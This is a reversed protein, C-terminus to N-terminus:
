TSSSLHRQVSGLFEDLHLNKVEHLRRGLVEPVWTRKNGIEPHWRELVGVPVVFIGCESLFSLVRQMSASPEGQPVAAIGGTKIQEWGSVHKISQAVIRRAEDTLADKEGLHSISSVADRLDRMVPPKRLQTIASQLTRLEKEIDFPPHDNSPICERVLRTDDLFDIDVIAASPVGFRRAEKLARGMRAKGNVHMFLLDQRSNDRLHRDVYAQYYTCDSDGECVVIGEHFLGSLIESYRLFPDAWVGRVEDPNIEQFKNGRGNRSIRVIKVPTDRNELIGMLVDISHTAIVIQADDPSHEVLYRGLLRAQPPHLFAEPEDIFIMTGAPTIANILLGMFARVGDGQDSVPEFSRFEILLEESVPYGSDEITPKGTLLDLQQEHRNICIPFGFAKEALQSIRAELELDQVMKQLTGRPTGRMLSPKQASLPLHLRESTGHFSAFFPLTAGLVPQQEWYRFSGVSVSGEMEHVSDTVFIGGDNDRLRLRRSDLWAVVDEETGKKHMEVDAVIARDGSMGDKAAEHLERLFRSKGSNNPGVIVTIGRHPLELTQGNM